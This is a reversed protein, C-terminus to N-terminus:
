YISPVPKQLRRLRRQFTQARGVDRMIQAKLEAPSEFRREARVYHQFRVEISRPAQGELASLLFTEITLEDGEFTPRTGVNTVSPWVREADLDLTETVYVGRPSVLGPTPQLNLTPVTQKSGVGQGAVVDGRLSFWRNLLRGARVVRGKAIEGRIVSSSVMEGRVVVPPLFHPEFDLERGLEALVEPTGSQRVGFRFNEGVFVARTGLADILVKEVFERPTMRSTELTFPLVLVNEAGAAHLLRVREEVTCIMEPRRQPAVVSTPHPHFTLAAPVLRHESAYRTAERLLLQHGIHVGDFNGIALACPGFAGAAAELTRFDKV